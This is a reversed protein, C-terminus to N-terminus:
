TAAGAKWGADEVGGSERITDNKESVHQASGTNVQDHTRGIM